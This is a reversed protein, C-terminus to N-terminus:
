LSPVTFQTPSRLPFALGQHSSPINCRLPGSLRTGGGIRRGRRGSPSVVTGAPPATVCASVCPRVEPDVEVHSRAPAHTHVATVTRAHVDGNRMGVERRWSPDWGWSVRPYQAGLRPETAQPVSLPHRCPWSFSFLSYRRGSIDGCSWGVEGGPARVGEGPWRHVHLPGRGQKPGRGACSGRGVQRASM